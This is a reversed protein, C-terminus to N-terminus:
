GGVARKTPTFGPGAPPTPEPEPEPEPLAPPEPEPEPAVLARLDSGFVGFVQKAVSAKMQRDMPNLPRSGLLELVHQTALVKLTGILPKARSQDEIWARWAASNVLSRLKFRSLGLAAEVRRISWGSAAMLNELVVFVETRGDEDWADPLPNLWGNVLMMADHFQDRLEDVTLADVLLKESRAELVDALDTSGATRLERITQRLEAGVRMLGRPEETESM